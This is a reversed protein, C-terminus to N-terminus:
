ASGEGSNQGSGPWDLILEAMRAVHQAIEPPSAGILLHPSFPENVPRELVRTRESPLARVSDIARALTAQSNLTPLVISVLPKTM